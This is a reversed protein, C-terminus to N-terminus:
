NLKELEPWASYTATSNYYPAFGSDSYMAVGNRIFIRSEEIGTYGGMRNKSNARWCVVWGPGPDTMVWSYRAVPIAIEADRVSYPDVLTKKLYQLSINRYNAPYPGALQKIEASDRTACASLISFLLVAYKKVKYQKNSQHGGINTGVHTCVCRESTIRSKGLPTDLLRHSAAVPLTSTPPTAM